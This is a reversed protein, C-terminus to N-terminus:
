KTWSRKLGNNFKKAKLCRKFWERRTEGSKQHFCWVTGPISKSLTKVHKVAKSNTNQTVTDALPLSKAGTDALPLSKKAGTDALPLSKKAGTDALPLSKKAGTDALPLSKAGTVPPINECNSIDITVSM